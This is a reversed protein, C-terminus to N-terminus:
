GNDEEEMGLWKVLGNARGERYVCLDTAPCDKCEIQDCMTIALEEVTMSQFREYNTM